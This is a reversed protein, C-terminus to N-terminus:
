RLILILVATVAVAGALWGLAWVWPRRRRRSGENAAGFVSASLYPQCRGGGLFASQAERSETGAENPEKHKPESATM